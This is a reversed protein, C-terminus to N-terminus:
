FGFGNQKDGKTGLTGTRKEWMCDYVFAKYSAVLKVEGHRRRIPHEMRVPVGPM